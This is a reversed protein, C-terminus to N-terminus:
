FLCLRWFSFGLCAQGFIMLGAAVFSASVRRGINGARPRNRVRSHGHCRCRLPGVVPPMM